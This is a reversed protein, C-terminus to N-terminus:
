QVATLSLPTPTPPDSRIPLLHPQTRPTYHFCSSNSPLLLWPQLTRAVPFWFDWLISKSGPYHLFMTAAALPETVVSPVTPVAHFPHPRSPMFVLSANVLFVCLSPSGTHILVLAARRETKADRRKKKTVKKLQQPLLAV